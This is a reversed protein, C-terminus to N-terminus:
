KLVDAHERTNVVFRAGPFLQRLWAVYEALDAGHWRIEKFGTM